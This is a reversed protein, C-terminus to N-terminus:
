RMMKKYHEPYGTLKFILEFAEKFEQYDFEKIDFINQGKSHSERNMYRNFAQFRVNQLEKKQFVNNLDQKEVFNFFYEIVNRMCNAILAPAQNKDKIIHWYAQYDNQIEEYKMTCFSSGNENKCIRYLSQHKEREEHNLNTLEYFFYLSHTLVFIQEYKETRLFEKHILRGINFVYIHSLSSIPDDIVIIKKDAHREAKSEGRCLEMFYLFSIVMKEGESLTKFVDEEGSDRVLRYLADEESYKEITFDTIGLDILGQKINDVAEDINVTKKQNEGVVDSNRKIEQKIGELERKITNTRKVFEREQKFYLAVISDYSDRMLLWFKEKLANKSGRIDKIRNNYEDIDNNIVDIIRNIDVECSITSELSIAISLNEVKEKLRMKNKSFIDKFDLRVRELEEQYKDAFPSKSIHEMTEMAKRGIEEYAVELEGVAKKDTEFTEDFFDTIHKILLESITEQQCFPCRGVGDEINVYALGQNVWDSNGLEEILAAVSSDRNGVIAKSLLNSGEIENLRLNIQQLREEPKVDGQLSIADKKLDEISFDLGQDTKPTSALQQFLVQKNGKFGDLCFSLVRDSGAYKEKIEWAHNYFRDEGKKYNKEEKILEDELDRKKKNLLRIKENTEDIIRKADSNEKSLTFIGSIGEPEYFYDRIFSQNYVVIEDDDELGNISCNAYREDKPNYLFDSFTSKGTGNLGYILNVRKDTNLVSENRYSAVKNLTISTIM